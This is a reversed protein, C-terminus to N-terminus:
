GEDTGVGLQKMQVQEERSSVYEAKAQNSKIIANKVASLEVRFGRMKIRRDSSMEKKFLENFGTLRRHVTQLSSIQRSLFELIKEEPAAILRRSASSERNMLAAYMRAKKRLEDMFSKYSVTEVRNLSSGADFYEIEYVRDGKKAGFVSDFLRRLRRGLGAQMAEMAQHNEGMKQIVDELQYGASALFRVARLLLEKYDVQARKRQRVQKRPELKKLVFRRMEERDPSFEEDVIEQVLETYFPQKDMHKKFAQKIAEVGKERTFGSGLAPLVRTRVEHKYAERQYASVDNILHRIQGTVRELQNASELFLQSSMSDGSLNIRTMFEDLTRSVINADGGSLRGWQIYQLVANIRGLRKLDLFEVSFQYYTNLFELQSHYSSLRQGMRLQKETEIFDDAPPVTVETIKEDYKYPDEKILSKKFLIQLIGEFYSQYVALQKKLEALSDQELSQKKQQLAAALQEEWRSNEEM